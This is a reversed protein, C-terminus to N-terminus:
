GKPRDSGLERRSIGARDQNYPNLRERMAFLYSRTMKAKQSTSFFIRSINGAWTMGLDTTRLWGGSEALYGAAKLQEIEEAFVEHEPVRSLPIAQLLFPFMVMLRHAKEATSCHAGVSVPLLDSEITAMYEELSTTNVYQHDAVFGRSSPGIGISHGEALLHQKIGEIYPHEATTTAFTCSHVADYGNDRMITRLTEFMAISMDNSPKTSFRDSNEVIAKFRTNEWLTLSYVDIYDPRLDFTRALDDRLTGLSQDPLNYLLDVAFEAMGAERVADAARRVDAVTPKLGLKRRLEERFTQVGYSVRNVGYGRLLTLKASSQLTLAEGEMTIVQCRSLDFADHLAALVADLFEPEVSTPTGGGIEVWRVSRGRLFNSKGYRYIEAVLANFFRKKVAYPTQENLTKFLPCFHCLYDCFPIHLYIFIPRVDPEADLYATFSARDNVKDEEESLKPYYFFEALRDKFDLSTM